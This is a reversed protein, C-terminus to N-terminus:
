YKKDVCVCYILIFSYFNKALMIVRTYTTAKKGNVDQGGGGVRFVLGWRGDYTIYHTHQTQAIIAIPYLFKPIQSWHLPSPPLYLKHTSGEEFCLQVRTSICNGLCICMVSNCKYMNYRCRFIIPHYSIYSSIGFISTFHISLYISPYPTRIYTHYM